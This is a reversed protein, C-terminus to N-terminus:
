QEKKEKVLKKVDLIESIFTYGLPIIILLIFGVTTRIVRSILSLVIFRYKVVGYIQDQYVVPDVTVNNTGKTYFMYSNNEFMTNIVEHTIIKDKLSDELGQYSIIDGVKINQYDETKVLIIDNKHIKPEMSDSVIVFIRYGFLERNNFVKQYLSILCFFSIFIIVIIELIKIIKERIGQNM